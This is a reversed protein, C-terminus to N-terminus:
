RIEFYDISTNVNSMNKFKKLINQQTSRLTPPPQEAVTKLFAAFQETASGDAPCIYHLDLVKCYFRLYDGERKYSVALKSNQYNQLTLALNKSGIAELKGTNGCSVCLFMTENMRNSKKYSGCEPCKYFTSNPSVLVPRELGALEAKYFVFNALMNYEGVQLGQGQISVRLKDSRKLLNEMVIKSGHERAIRIVENSLLHIRNRGRASGAQIKGECINDGEPTCVTYYLESSIGRCVGMFSRCPQVAEPEYWLRINIYYAGNASILEASKPQAREEDIDRLHQIQWDGADLPFIVYRRRRRLSVKSEEYPKLYCLEAKPHAPAEVSDALNFLFLKVYYRGTKQDQLIAYDRNKDFRCFLPPRTKRYKRFVQSLQRMSIANESSLLREIDEDTTRVTPYHTKQGTGARGAYTALLMSADLKLADKFPEVGFPELKNMMERDMLRLYGVKSGSPNEGIRSEMQRLLFEFAQTYREIAQDLIAKKHATPRRLKISITKYPM